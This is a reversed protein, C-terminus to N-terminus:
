RGVFMCVRWM